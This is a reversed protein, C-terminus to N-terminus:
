TAPSAIARPRERKHWVKAWSMVPREVALYALWGAGISAATACVLYPAEWGPSVYKLLVGALCDIVIAHFLYVSYTAEGLRAVIPTSLLRSILTGPAIAMTFAIALGLVLIADRVPNTPGLKSGTAMHALVLFAAVVLLVGESRQRGVARCLPERYVAIAVGVLFELLRGVASYTFTFTEPVYGTGYLIVSSARWAAWSVLGALWLLRPSVSRSLIMGIAFIGYLQMELAVTWYPGLSTSYAPFFNQTLTLHTIAELVDFKRGGAVVWAFAVAISVVYAPYIRVVRRELFPAWEFPKRAPGVFVHSICFGSLILFLTVGMGGLPSLADMWRPPKLGHQFFSLYVHALIVWTSAVARMGDVAHM